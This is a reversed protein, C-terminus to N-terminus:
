VIKECLKTVNGKEVKKDGLRLEFFLDRYDSFDYTHSSLIDFNLRIKNPLFM